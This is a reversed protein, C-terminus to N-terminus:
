FINPRAVPQLIMPRGDAGFSVVISCAGGLGFGAGFGCGFFYAAIATVSAEPTRAM